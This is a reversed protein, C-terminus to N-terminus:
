QPERRVYVDTGGIRIEINVKEPIVQVFGQKLLGRIARNVAWRATRPNIRLLYQRAAYDMVERQLDERTCPYKNWLMITRYAIDAPSKDKYPTRHHALNNRVKVRCSDIISCGACDDAQPNFLKGFCPPYQKSMQIRKIDWHVM